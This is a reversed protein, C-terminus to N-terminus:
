HAPHILDPIVVDSPCCVNATQSTFGSLVSTQVQVSSPCHICRSFSASTPAPLCPTEVPLGCLLTKHIYHLLVPFSNTHPSPVCHSLILTTVEALSLFLNLFLFSFHTSSNYTAIDHTSIKDYLQPCFHNSRSNHNATMLCEGTSNLLNQYMKPHFYM